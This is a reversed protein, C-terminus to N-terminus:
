KLSWHQFRMQFKTVQVFIVRQVVCPSIETREGEQMRQLVAVSLTHHHANDEPLMDLWSRFVVPKKIYFKLLKELNSALM